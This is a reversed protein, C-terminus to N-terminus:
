HEFDMNKSKNNSINRTVSSISFTVHEPCLELYMKLIYEGREKDFDLILGSHWKDFM